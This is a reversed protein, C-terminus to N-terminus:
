RVMDVLMDIVNFIGAEAVADNNLVMYTGGVLVSPTSTVGAKQMEHLSQQVKANIQRANLLSEFEDAEIGYKAFLPAVRETHVDLNKERRLNIIPEFLAEHLREPQDSQFGAFYMAAHLGTAINWVVPKAEFRIDDPATSLWEKLKPEFDRCHPCGYWFFEVVSVGDSSVSLPEDLRRYHTGEILEGAKAVADSRDANRSTLYILVVTVFVVFVLSATAFRNNIM